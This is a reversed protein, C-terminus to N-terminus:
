FERICRVSRSGLVFSSPASAASIDPFIRFTKSSITENKEHKCCTEVAQRDTTNECQQFSDGPFVDAVTFFFSETCCSFLQSRSGTLYKLM